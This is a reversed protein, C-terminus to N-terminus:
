RVSVHSSLLTTGIKNEKRYRLRIRPFYASPKYINITLNKFNIYQKLMVYESMNKNLKVGYYSPRHM